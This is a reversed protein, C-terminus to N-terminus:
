SSGGVSFRWKIRTRREGSVEEVLRMERDEHSPMGDDGEPRMVIDTRLKGHDVGSQVWHAMRGFELRTFNMKTDIDLRLAYKPVRIFPFIGSRV